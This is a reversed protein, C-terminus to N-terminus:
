LSVEFVRFDVRYQAFYVVCFHLVVYFQSLNFVNNLNNMRIEWLEPMTSNALDYATIIM